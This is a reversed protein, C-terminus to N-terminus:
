AETQGPGLLFPLVQGASEQVKLSLARVEGPTSSLTYPGSRQWILPKTALLRGMGNMTSNVGDCARPLTRKVKLHGQERLASVPLRYVAVLLLDPAAGAVTISDFAAMVGSHRLLM